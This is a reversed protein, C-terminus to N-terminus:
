QNYAAVVCIKVTITVRFQIIHSPKSMTHAFPHSPESLAQAFTTNKLRMRASLFYQNAGTFDWKQV